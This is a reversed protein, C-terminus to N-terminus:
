DTVTVTFLAVAVAEAAGAYIQEPLVVRVAVPPPVYEQFLPVVEAECTTEGVELVVYVTVTVAALVHVAVALTVTFTAFKPLIVGIESLVHSGLAM